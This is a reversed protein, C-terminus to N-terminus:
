RCGTQQWRDGDSDSLLLGLLSFLAVRFFIIGEVTAREDPLLASVSIHTFLRFNSCADWIHRVSAFAM